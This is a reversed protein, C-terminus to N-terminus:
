GRQHNFGRILADNVRALTGCSCHAAASHRVGPSAPTLSADADHIGAPLPTCLTVNPSFYAHLKSWQIYRLADGRVNYLLPLSRLLFDPGSKPRTLTTM